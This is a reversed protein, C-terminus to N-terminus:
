GARALVRDYLTEYREVMARISFSSAVRDRAAGGLRARFTADACLRDLGQALARDDGNPFSL